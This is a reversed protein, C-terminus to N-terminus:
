GYFFHIEQLTITSIQFKAYCVYLDWVLFRPEPVVVFSIIGTISWCKNWLALFVIKRLIVAWWWILPFSVDGASGDGGQGRKGAGAATQPSPIGNSLSRSTQYPGSEWQTSIPSAGLIYWTLVRIIYSIIVVMQEFVSQLLENLLEDIVQKAMKEDEQMLIFWNHLKHKLNPVTHLKPIM